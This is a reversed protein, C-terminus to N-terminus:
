ANEMVIRETEKLHQGEYIDLPNSLVLDGSSLGKTVAIGDEYEKGTTVYQKKARGNKQLFVYETGNEEAQIAEYPVLFEQSESTVIKGKASYGPKIDEGPEQITVVVEVVNEQGSTTVIQKAESGISKVKGYYTSKKFGNGTIEVKQGAEIDAIKTESVNLRLQLGQEGSIVMLAKTPDAYEDESVFLSTIKGAMPATIIKPEDKKNSTEESESGGYLSAYVEMADQSFLEANLPEVTLLEEGINVTDGVKVRLDTIVGMAAPYVKKSSVREVLGSCSVTEQTMVPQVMVTRVEAASAQMANGWLSFALILMATVSLLGVYKKM